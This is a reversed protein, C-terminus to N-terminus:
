IIFSREINPRLRTLRTPFSKILKCKLIKTGAEGDVVAAAAPLGDVATAM